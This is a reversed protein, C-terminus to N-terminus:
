NACPVECDSLLIERHNISCRTPDDSHGFWCLLWHWDQRKCRPDHYGDHRKWMKGPYAGSPITSSYDCLNKFAHSDMLAHTDDLLICDTRPQQWYHGMPDTIPPIVNKSSM